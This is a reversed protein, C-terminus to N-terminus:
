PLARIDVMRMLLHLPHAPFPQFGVREYWAALQPTLAHVVVGFSASETTQREARKLADYLLARGYGQGQHRGAIGLQGILHAPIPISRPLRRALAAPLDTALVTYNSLSYFGVVEGTQVEVMVHVVAIGRGSLQGAQERFWRDVSAEGSSFIQRDHGALCEVRFPPDGAM